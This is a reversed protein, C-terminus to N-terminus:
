YTNCRGFDIAFKSNHGTLSCVSCKNQRTIASAPSIATGTQANETLQTLRRAAAQAAQVGSQGYFNLTPINQTIM